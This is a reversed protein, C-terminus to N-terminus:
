ADAMNPRPVDKCFAWSKARDRGKPHDATQKKSIFSQTKDSKVGGGGREPPPASTQDPIVSVLEGQARVNEDDKEKANKGRKIHPWLNGAHM